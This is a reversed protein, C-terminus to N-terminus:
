MQFEKEKQKIIALDGVELRSRLEALYFVCVCLSIIHIFSYFLVNELHIM